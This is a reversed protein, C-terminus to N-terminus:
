IFFFFMPQLMIDTIEKYVSSQFVKQLCTSQRPVQCVWKEYGDKEQDYREECLGEVAEKDQVFKYGNHM